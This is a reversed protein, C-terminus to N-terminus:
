FFDLTPAHSGLPVIASLIALALLLDLPWGGCRAPGAAIVPLMRCPLLALIPLATWVPVVTGLFYPLALAQAFLALGIAAGPLLPPLDSKGATDPARFLGLGRGLCAGAAGSLMNVVTDPHGYTRLPHLGQLLEELVGCAMVLLLVWGTLGPEAHRVALARRLVVALLVYEPVHIRKQPFRADPLIFAVTALLAALAIWPLRDRAAIGRWEPVARCIVAAVCLAAVFPAAQSAMPGLLRNMALWIGYVNPYFAVLALAVGVWAAERVSIGDGARDPARDSSPARGRDM